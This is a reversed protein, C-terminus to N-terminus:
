LAGMRFPWPFVYTEKPIGYSFWAGNVWSRAFLRERGDDLAGGYGVGISVLKQDEALYSTFAMKADDGVFIGRAESEGHIRAPCLPKRQLLGDIVAAVMDNIFSQTTRTYSHGQTALYKPLKSALTRHGLTRLRTQLLNLESHRPNPFSTQSSLLSLREEDRETFTIPEDLDWLWGVTQIGEPTLKVDPFRCYNDIYSARFSEKPPDFKFSIRELLDYVSCNLLDRFDQNETLFVEGNLLYLCLICTSLGYRSEALYEADLRTLYQCCNAFIALRDEVNKNQREKIDLLISLSSAPLRPLEDNYTSGQSDGLGLDVGTGYVRNWINYQRVRALMDDPVEYGNAQCALCFRTAAKRFKDCRIELEGPITGFLNCNKILSSDHRILLRMKSSACHDEQFIWTRKWREDSLILCLVSVIGSIAESNARSTSRKFIQNLDGYLLESLLNLQSQSEIVVSLLGLSLKSDRYVLDMIQVWKGKDRKDEQYICEKDIWLFGIGHTQAFRIARDFLLGPVRSHHPAKKPRRVRYRRTETEPMGDSWRWSIAVYDDRENIRLPLTRMPPWGPHPRMGGLHSRARGSHSSADSLTSRHRGRNPGRGRGGVASIDLLRLGDKRADADRRLKAREQIEIMQEVLAAPNGDHIKSLILDTDDNM